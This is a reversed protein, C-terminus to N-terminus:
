SRFQQVLSSCTLRKQLYGFQIHVLMKLAPKLSNFIIFMFPVPIFFMEWPRQNSLHLGALGVATPLSKDMITMVDAASAHLSAASASVLQQVQATEQLCISDQWASIGLMFQIAYRSVIMDCLKYPPQRFSIRPLGRRWPAAPLLHRYLSLQM